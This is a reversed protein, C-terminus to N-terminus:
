TQVTEKGLPSARLDRTGLLTATATTKRGRILRVALQIHLRSHWEHFRSGAEVFRERKELTALPLGINCSWKEQIQIAPALLVLLCPASRQSVPTTASVLVLVQLGFTQLPALSGSNSLFSCTDTSATKSAPPSSSNVWSGPWRLTSLDTQNRHRPRLRSGVPCRRCRCLPTRSCRCGRGFSM